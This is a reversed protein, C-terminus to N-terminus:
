DQGGYKKLSIVINLATHPLGRHEANDGNVLKHALCGDLGMELTKVAGLHLKQRQVDLPGLRLTVCTLSLYQSMDHYVNIIRQDGPLGLSVGEQGM